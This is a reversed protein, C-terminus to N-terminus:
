SIAVTVLTENSFTRSKLRQGRREEGMEGERHM